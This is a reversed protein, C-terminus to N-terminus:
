TDIIMIIAGIIAGIPSLLTAVLGGNDAAWFDPARMANASRQM